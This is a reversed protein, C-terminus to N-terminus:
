RSHYNQSLKTSNVEIQVILYSVVEVDEQVIVEEHSVEKIISAAQAKHAGNWIM